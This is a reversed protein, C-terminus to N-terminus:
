VSGTHASRSLSNLRETAASRLIHRQIKGASNTPMSDFALIRRPQKYPPLDSRCFGILEDTDIRRNPTAVVCAVPRELGYEDEIGVVVAESVSPHLLLRAEVETPSVWVGGSKIM